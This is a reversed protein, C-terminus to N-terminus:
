LVYQIWGPLWIQNSRWMLRQHGLYGPLIVLGDAAVRALEPLTKNSIKSIMLGSCGVSHCSLVVKFNSLYPLLFKINAALLIAKHVLAKCNCDTEDLGYPEFGWAETDEEKLLKSAASCSEPGVHLMKRM